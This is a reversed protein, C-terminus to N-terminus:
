QKELMQTLLSNVVAPDARGETQKMIKGVFFGVVKKNGAKYEAVSKENDALLQAIVSQIVTTDTVLGLNNEKIYDEPDINEEYIKTLIKKGVSRNITKSDVLNILKAFKRCDIMIEDSDSSTEAINESTATTTDFGEFGFASLDDDDFDSDPSDSSTATMAALASKCTKAIGLLDGTIWNVIEKPKDTFTMTCDFLDSLSKSGTIIKSDAEPISYVETLRKYKEHSLEPLGNKVSEIWEDSIYVPMIDPNPFYRYDTANEKSRMSYSQGGEDDWRRTEQVLQESGTRIAEIHRNSEFEIARTISRLSNMNKMETRVGYEKAGEERVSINVDCRM